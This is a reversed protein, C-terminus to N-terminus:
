APELPERSLWLMGLALVVLSGAMVATLACGYDLEQYRFVTAYAYLAVTETRGGPGGGTLVWILDFIGFAQIARFLAAVALAPRLAPLTVLRFKRLPGAGDVSAAEYLENPVGALAGLAIVAVFPATKWVDALVCAWFARRPDALWDGIAGAYAAFMWRWAMAMVAAPLAWPVLAAARLPARGRFPRSLLLALAVGLALELTVSAATFVATARLSSWLRADASLRSFGGALRLTEAAPLLGVLALLGLAPAAFLWGRLSRFARPGPTM